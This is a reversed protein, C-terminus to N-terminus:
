RDPFVSSCMYYTSSSKREERYKTGKSTKPLNPIGIIDSDGSSYAYESNGSSHKSNGSSHESNGSTKRTHQIVLYSIVILIGAVHVISPIAIIAVMSVGVIVGTPIHEVVGAHRFILVLVVIMAKNYDKILM